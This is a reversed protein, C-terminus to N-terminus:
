LHIEQHFLLIQKAFRRVTGRRKDTVEWKGSFFPFSGKYLLQGDKGYVDIASGFASKLDIQGASEGQGNLIETVGANFFNDRFYLEM